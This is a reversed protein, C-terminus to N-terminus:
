LTYTIRAGYIYSGSALSDTALYYAYNNNDVAPNTITTSATNVTSLCIQSYAGTSLDIRRLVWDRGDATANGTIICSTINAGHPLFVPARLYINAASTSIFGGGDINVDNIDPALAVFNTGPCSWYLTGDLKCAARAEANTYKEHHASADAKHDYAWESSPAKKSEDETPPNELILSPDVILKGTATGKLKVWVKNVSDWGYLYAGGM